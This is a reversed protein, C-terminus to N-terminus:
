YMNLNVRFLKARLPNITEESVNPWDLLQGLPDDQIAEYM